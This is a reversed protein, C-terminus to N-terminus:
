LYLEGWRGTEVFGIKRYLEAVADYGSILMPTKGKALIRNVLFKTIGTGIGKHRQEPIVAVAALVGVQEDQSVICGTGVPKGGAHFEYLEVAEKQLSQRMDQAWPEFLLHTRYYEHSQQLVRFVSPLDAQSHPFLVGQTFAEKDYRMTYSSETTGGLIAQLAECSDWNTDIERVPQQAIFQALEQAPIRNDCSIVLVGNRLFLAASTQGDPALGLWFQAQASESGYCRLATRCKSGFIPEINCADYFVPKNQAGVALFM